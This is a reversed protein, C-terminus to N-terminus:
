AHARDKYGSLRDTRKFAPYKTQILEVVRDVAERFDAEIGENEGARHLDCGLELFADVDDQHADLFRGVVADYSEAYESPHARYNADYDTLLM